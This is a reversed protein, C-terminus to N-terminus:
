TTKILPVYSRFSSFCWLFRSSLTCFYWNGVYGDYILVSDLLNGILSPSSIRLLQRLIKYICSLFLSRFTKWIPYLLLDGYWLNSRRSIPTPSIYIHEWWWRFIKAYILYKQNLFIRHYFNTYLLFYQFGM